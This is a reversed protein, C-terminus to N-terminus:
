KFVFKGTEALRDVLQKSKNIGYKIPQDGLLSGAGFGAAQSAAIAGESINSYKDREEQIPSEKLYAPEYALNGIVGQVAGYMHERALGGYNPMRVAYQLTPKIGQKLASSLGKKVGAKLVSAGFWNSLDSGEVLAGDLMRWGLGKQRLSDDLFQNAYNMREYSTEQLMTRHAKDPNFLIKAHEWGPKWGAPKKFVRNQNLDTGNAKRVLNEAEYTLHQLAPLVTLKGLTEVGEFGNLLALLASSGVTLYDNPLAKGSTVKSFANIRNKAEKDEGSISNYDSSYSDLFRNNYGKVRAGKYNLFERILEHQIEPTYEKGNILSDWFKPFQAKVHSIFMREKDSIAKPPKSAIRYIEESLNRQFNNYDSETFAKSNLNYYKSNFSTETAPNWSEHINRLYEITEFYPQKQTNSTKPITVNGSFSGIANKFREQELKQLTEKAEQEKKSRDNYEEESEFLGRFPSGLQYKPINNISM